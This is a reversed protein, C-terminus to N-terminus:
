RGITFSEGALPEDVVEWQLDDVRAAPPGRRLWARFAQLGEVSGAAQGEVAGDARNRVQGVLGLRTAEARAMFRFGVGQVRGTVVFRAHM